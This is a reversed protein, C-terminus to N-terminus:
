KEMRIDVAFGTVFLVVVYALCFVLGKLVLRVFLPISAFLVPHLLQIAGMISISSVLPVAVAKVLRSCIGKQVIFFAGLLFLLLYFVGSSIAFARINVAPIGCLAISVTCRVAAAFLLIRFATGSRGCANLVTNFAFTFCCLPCFPMLVCLLRQAVVTQSPTTGFLFQVIDGGNCMVFVSCPIGAAAVVRLLVDTQHELRKRNGSTYSMAMLPMCATGVPAVMAPVLNFLTLVMGQYIGYLYISIEGASMFSANGYSRVIETYPLGKIIPLCVATDFFGIASVALASACVPVSMSLMQKATPIYQPPCRTANKGEHGACFMYVACILGSATVSLLCVAVATDGDTNDLLYKLIYVGGIGLVTKSVSELLNSVATINMNMRGQTAGKYVTEVVAFVICPSLIVAGAFFIGDQMYWGYFSGFLVFLVAMVAAFPIYIGFAKQVVAKTGYQPPVSAAFRSVCPVIGATAFSFFPLFLSFVSSYRGMAGAGLMRTLPIRYAASLLKVAFGSAVLVAGAKFFSNHKKM